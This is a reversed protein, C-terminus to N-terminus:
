KRETFKRKRNDIDKNKAREYRINFIRRNAERHSTEAGTHIYPTQTQSYSKLLM